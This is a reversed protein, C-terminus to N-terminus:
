LAAITHVMPIGFVLAFTIARAAVLQELLFLGMALVCLMYTLWCVKRYLGTSSNPEILAQYLWGWVAIRLIILAVFATM